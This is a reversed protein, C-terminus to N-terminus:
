FCFYGVESQKNFPRRMSFATEPFVGMTLCFGGTEYINKKVRLNNVPKTNIGM